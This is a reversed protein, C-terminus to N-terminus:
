DAVLMCSYWVGNEKNQCMDGGFFTHKQSAIKWHGSSSKWCKFMEDAIVPLPDDKQRDWSEACIESANCKLIKSITDYRESFNQHGQKHHDAMYQSHESCLQMLLPHKKSECIHAGPFRLGAEILAESPSM